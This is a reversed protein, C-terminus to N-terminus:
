NQRTISTRDAGRIRGQTAQPLAPNVKGGTIWRITVRWQDRV